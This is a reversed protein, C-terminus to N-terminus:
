IREGRKELEGDNVEDLGKMGLGTGVVDLILAPARKAGEGLGV